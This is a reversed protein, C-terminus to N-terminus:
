DSAKVGFCRQMQLQLGFFWMHHNLNKDVKTGRSIKESTSM